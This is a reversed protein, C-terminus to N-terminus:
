SNQGETLHNTKTVALCSCFRLGCPMVLAATQKETAEQRPISDTQRSCTTCVASVYNSWTQLCFKRQNETNYQRLLDGLQSPM